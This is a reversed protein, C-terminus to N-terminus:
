KSRTARSWCYAGRLRNGCFPNTRSHSEIRHRSRTSAWTVVAELRGPGGGQRWRAAFSLAIYVLVFACGSLMARVIARVRVM